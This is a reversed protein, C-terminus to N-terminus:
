EENQAELSAIKEGLETLAKAHTMTHQQLQEKVEALEALVKTLRCAPCEQQWHLTQCKECLSRMESM